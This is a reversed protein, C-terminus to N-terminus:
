SLSGKNLISQHQVQYHYIRMIESDAKNYRMSTVDLYYASYLGPQPQDYSHPHMTTMGNLQPTTNKLRRLAMFEPDDYEKESEFEMTHIFHTFDLM